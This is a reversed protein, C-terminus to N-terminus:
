FGALKRFSFNKVNIRLLKSTIIIFVAPEPSIAHEYVTIAEKPVM